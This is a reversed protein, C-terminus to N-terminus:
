DFLIRDVMGGVVTGVANSIVLPGLEIGAGSAKEGVEEMSATMQECSQQIRQM